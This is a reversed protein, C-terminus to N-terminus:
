NYVRIEIPTYILFNDNYIGNTIGRVLITVKSNDQTDPLIEIVMDYSNSMITFTKNFPFENFEEIGYNGTSYRVLTPVFGLTNELIIATPASTGTQSLLATYVRYIPQTIQTQVWEKNVLIKGSVNNNILTNTLSPGILEGNLYAIFADSRTLVTFDDEPDANQITGNGVVFMPKNTANFDVIQENIINSAQGVVTTNMSTVDHGIGFLSNTYGNDKLNFGADFSGIGNNLILSGFSTSLYNSSTVDIGSAFSNIGTAGATSSLINSYSFDVAGDGIPGYNLSDRTVFYGIGNGENYNSFASVVIPTADVWSLGTYIRLKGLTKNYILKYPVTEDAILDDNTSTPIALRKTVNLYNDQEIFLGSSRTKIQTPAQSYTNISLICILLLLLKKM